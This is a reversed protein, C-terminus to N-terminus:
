SCRHHAMCSLMSRSAAYRYPSCALSRATMSALSALRCWHSDTNSALWAMITSRTSRCSGVKALALRFTTATTVSKSM